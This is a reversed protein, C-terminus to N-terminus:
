PIIEVAVPNSVFDAVGTVSDGLVFAFHLTTGVLAPSIAGFTQFTATAKGSADLQGSFNQLEPSNINNYIRQLLNDRNLPLQLGGPLSIGADIGSRNALLLYDSGARDSGAILDFDISNSVSASLSADGPWLWHQYRRVKFIGNRGGTSYTNTWDWVINDNSDVEFVRGAPGDCILTNGNAQREAGSTHASLFPNTAGGDYTWTLNAPGFPQGPLLTYNGLADVPPQFEDVSSRDGSPRGIGNNYILFNGAGPRGEAIWQADHQGFFVQDSATGRDYAQPNGWRYLLDGGKGSNGGFSTAAEATTTSHDIVWLESHYRSSLVIQDFEANYKVSNLHVWDDIQPDIPPFNLNVRHPHDTIVGYNPAAPDFSQVLHDWLHWEWVIIGTSPDLELIQESWFRSNSLISPDRGAAIAGAASMDEWAILLVNGNPMFEVDHHLNESSTALQYDWVVQGSWDLEHVGGGVGGLHGASPAITKYTRLLNGNPLLYCALGPRSHDSWTHVVNQNEDLLHADDTWTPSFLTLGEQPTFQSLLLSLPIACLLSLM